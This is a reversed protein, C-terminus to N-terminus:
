SLLQPCTLGIGLITDVLGLRSMSRYNEVILVEPMIM